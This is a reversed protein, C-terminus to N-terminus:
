PPPTQKVRSSIETQQINSMATFRVGIGPMKADQGWPRQWCIEAMIPTQDHISVFQVWVEVRPKITDDTSFLFSGGESLDISVTKVPSSMDATTSLLANLHLHVRNRTYVIKPSVSRCHNIFEAATRQTDSDAAIELAIVEGSTKSINLWASPLARLTDEARNKEFPSSKVIVPMDLLIGNHATQAAEAIVDRLSSVTRYAVREQDLFGEYIRRRDEDQVALLLM